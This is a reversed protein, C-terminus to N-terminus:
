TVLFSRIRKGGNVSSYKMAKSLISNDLKKNLIKHYFKDFKLKHHNILTNIEYKNKINTKTQLKNLVIFM